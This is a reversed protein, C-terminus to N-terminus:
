SATPVASRRRARETISIANGCEDVPEVLNLARRARRAHVNQQLTGHEVRADPHGASDVPRRSHRAERPHRRLAPGTHSIWSITSKDIRSISDGARIRDGERIIIIGGDLHLTGSWDLPCPEGRTSDTLDPSAAGSQASNSSGREGREPSDNQADTNDRVTDCQMKTRSSRSNAPSASHPHRTPPRSGARRPTSISKRSRVRAGRPDVPDLRPPREPLGLRLIVLVTALMAYLGNTM